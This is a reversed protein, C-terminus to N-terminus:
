SREMLRHRDTFGRERVDQASFKWTGSWIMVPKAFVQLSPHHMYKAMFQNSEVRAKEVKRVLSKTRELTAQQKPLQARMSTLRRDLDDASGGWPKFLILAAVINLFLLIGLAARVSVRPDKFSALNLRRLPTTAAVFSFSKPM